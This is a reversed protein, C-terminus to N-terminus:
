PKLLKKLKYLMELATRPSLADPDLEELLAQAAPPMAPPPPEVEPAPQNQEFLPLPPAQRGREKELM